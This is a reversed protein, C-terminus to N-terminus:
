IVGFIERYARQKMLMDAFKEVLPYLWHICGTGERGVDNLCRTGKSNTLAASTFLSSLLCLVWSTSPRQRAPGLPRPARALESYARLADSGARWRRCPPGAARVGAGRRCEWEVRIALGDFGVTLSFLWFSFQQKDLSVHAQLPARSELTLHAQRLTFRPMMLLHDQDESGGLASERGPGSTGQGCRAPRPGVGLGRPASRTRQGSGEGTGTRAVPCPWCPTTRRKRTLTLPNDRACSVRRM